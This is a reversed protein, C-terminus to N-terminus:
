SLVFRKFGDEIAGRGGEGRTVIKRTRLVIKGPRSVRPPTAGKGLIFGLPPRAFYPEYKEVQDRLESARRRNRPV